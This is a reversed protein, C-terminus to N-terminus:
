FHVKNDFDKEFGIYVCKDCWLIKGLFNFINAESM